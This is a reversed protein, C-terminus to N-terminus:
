QEGEGKPPTTPPQKGAKTATFGLKVGELLQKVELEKDKSNSDAEVKAAKILLDARKIEIDATDKQQKQALEQEKLALEKQQVINLPDQAEQEAQQQQAQATNAQLLKQAAQATLQSLAVEVEEPLPEDPPPLPVGLQEEIKQRYAFSLHESIHAMAASQIQRAMPNQGMMQALLPDQIAAMHVTIHAEHDQYLFAKVPKGNMIAMNESVPDKPTQEDETPIIKGPNKVGMVELMQRHLQPLDYIQPASQAMQMVAQYQVVRQAMTSANPDSVPIVEVMDYDSKKARPEGEEPEYDYSKPTYDRIIKSLLKFEQKMSAHIRAQVASMVKLTRELIALTTGVPAQASM